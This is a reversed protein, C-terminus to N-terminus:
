RRTAQIPGTAQPMRDKESPIEADRSGPFHDEVNAIDGPVISVQEVKQAERLWKEVKM